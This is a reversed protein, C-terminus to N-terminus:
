DNSTTSRAFLVRDLKNELRTHFTKCEGLQMNLGSIKTDMVAQMQRWEGNIVARQSLDKITDTNVTVQHALGSLYWVAIVTQVVLAGVLELTRKDPRWFEPGEDTRDAM